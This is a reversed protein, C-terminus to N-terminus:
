KVFRGDDRSEPLKHVNRGLWGTREAVRVNFEPVYPKIDILPTGDVLDVDQIHLVNEEIRDLRMVSIGVPNPRAPSRTAFVGHFQDDLFSKVELAAEGSLHLHCIVIIHSFGQVDKLGGIYEPFVEITGRVDRAGIPQIPTGRPKKFPSHIIGIPRFIIDNKNNIEM